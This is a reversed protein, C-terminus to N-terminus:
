SDTRCDTWKKTEKFIKIQELIYQISADNLYVHTMTNHSVGCSQLVANLFVKLDGKVYNRVDIIYDRDFKAYKENTGFNYTYEAKKFLNKMKREVYGLINDENIEVLVTKNCCLVSFRKYNGVGIIQGEMKNGFYKFRIYDYKEYM